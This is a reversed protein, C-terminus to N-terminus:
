KGEKMAKSLGASPKAGNKVWEEYMKQDLNFVPVKLNPNYSGLCALYKGNRKRSKEAVVIRYVPQKKKGLLSLRIIVSM